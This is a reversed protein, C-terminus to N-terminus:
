HPRLGLVVSAEDPTAVPRGVAACLRVADRVLDANSPRSGDGAWDEHGVRLHGGAELAMTAMGSAVCDGGLVAVAWNVSSGELMELYADLAKRTAPLGFTYGGRGTHGGSFYLKVFCGRPLRGEREHALVTQLWGPEFIAINPALGLERCRDLKYAFDAFSNAYVFSSPTEGPRAGVRGLNVSGPDALAMRILGRSHLTVHHRWRYEIDGGLASTPYLIADPRQALVRSYMETGDAAMTDPDSARDHQHVIAAGAEICELAEQALSEPDSARPGNLAVEIIAATGRM